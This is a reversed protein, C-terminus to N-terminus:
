CLSMKLVSLLSADEGRGRRSPEGRPSFGTSNSRGGERKGRNNQDSAERDQNSYDRRGKDGRKNYDRNSDKNDPNDRSPERKDAGFREQSKSYSMSRDNNKNPRERSEGSNHYRNGDRIPKGFKDKRGGVNNRSESARENSSESISASVEDASIDSEEDRARRRSDVYDEGESHESEDHRDLSHSNQTFDVSKVHESFYGIPKEHAMHDGGHGDNNGVRGGHMNNYGSRGRSRGRGRVFERSGRGGAGRPANQSRDRERSNYDANKRRQKNEEDRMRKVPPRGSEMRKDMNEDKRGRDEKKGRDEREKQKDDSKKSEHKM